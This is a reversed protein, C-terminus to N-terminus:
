LRSAICLKIYLTSYHSSWLSWGMSSLLSLRGLYSTVDQSTKGARLGDGIWTNVQGTYLLKNIAAQTNGSSGAVCNVYSKLSFCFGRLLDGDLRIFKTKNYSDM